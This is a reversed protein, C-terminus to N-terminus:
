TFKQRNMPQVNMTLNRFTDVPQPHDIDHTQNPKEKFTKCEKRHVSLFLCYFNSKPDKKQMLARLTFLSLPIKKRICMIKITCFFFLKKNTAASSFFPDKLPLCFLYSHFIIFVFRTWFFPTFIYVNLQFMQDLFIDM